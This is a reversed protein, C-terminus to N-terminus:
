AKCKFLTHGIGIHDYTETITLEANEILQILDDSHYMRSNGNATCTFYLSTAHLSYVATENQQKDWLPELIYLETDENMIGRLKKLISVAETESFCDLFQSMWIIDYGAPYPLSFDLFDVPIIKIRSEYGQAKINREAERLQGPLDLLAVHVDENYSACKVAFRGTNGGIDMIKAPNNRFLIPMVEDFASDSFYHNFNFWSKRFNDPLEPLAEYVTKRQGYERCLGSPKGTAIAEHLHFAAKYNVDNTFDMSIRIMPDTILFIGTKAIFYKDDKVMVLDLSLGAEMLIQVGYEPVNLNDSIVKVASGYPKNYLFELIGFDRLAKAAQFMMPAFALKQADSRAQDSSKYQSRYYRPM